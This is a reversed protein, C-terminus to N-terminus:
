SLVFQVIDATSRLVGIFCRVSVLVSVEECKLSLSRALQGMSYRFRVFHKINDVKSQKTSLEEEKVDVRSSNDM